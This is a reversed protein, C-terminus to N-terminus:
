PLVLGRQAEERSTPWEVLLQAEFVMEVMLIGLYRDGTM